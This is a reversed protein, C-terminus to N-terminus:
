KWKYGNALFEDRLEIVGHLSTELIVEKGEKYWSFYYKDCVKWHTFWPRDYKSTEKLTIKPKM